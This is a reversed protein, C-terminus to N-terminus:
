GMSNLDCLEVEAEIQQAVCGDLRKHAGEGGVWQRLEFCEVEMCIHDCVGAEATDDATEGATQGATKLQCHLLAARTFGHHLFRSHSHRFQYM